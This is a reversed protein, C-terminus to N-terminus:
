NDAYNFCNYTAISQKLMIKKENDKTRHYTLPHGCM